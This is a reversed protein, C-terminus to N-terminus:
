IIELFNENLKRFVFFSNEFIAANKRKDVLNHLSWYTISLPVASSHVHINITVANILVADAVNKAMKADPKCKKARRKIYNLTKIYTNAHVGM